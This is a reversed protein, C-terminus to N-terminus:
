LEPIAFIDAHANRDRYAEEIRLRSLEFYHLDFEMGVFERSTNACAVGTTGSGMCSDLITDGVRSYAKILYECLLVPKATPHLGLQDTPCEIVSNLIARINVILSVM